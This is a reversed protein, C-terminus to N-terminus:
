PKGLQESLIERFIQTANKCPLCINVFPHPFPPPSYDRSRYSARDRCISAVIFERSELCM